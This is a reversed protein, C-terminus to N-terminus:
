SRSFGGKGVNGTRINEQAQTVKDMMRKQYMLDKTNGGANKAMQQIIEPLEEGDADKFPEARTADGNIISNYDELAEPDADQLAEPTIIAEGGENTIFTTGAKKIQAALEKLHQTKEAASPNHGTSPFSKSNGKVVEARKFFESTEEDNKMKQVMVEETGKETKVKTIFKSNENVPAPAASSPKMLEKPIFKILDPSSTKIYQYNSLMWDDLQSAYPLLATMTERLTKLLIKLENPLIDSGCFPCVNIDIAHTWQPNIEVECSVCKM